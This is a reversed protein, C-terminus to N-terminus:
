EGRRSRSLRPMEKRDVEEEQMEEDEEHEAAPEEKEDELAEQSAHPLGLPEAALPIDAITTM